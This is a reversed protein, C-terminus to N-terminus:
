LILLFDRSNVPVLSNVTGCINVAITSDVDSFNSTMCGCSISVFPEWLFINFSPICFLFLHFMFGCFQFFCFFWSYIWSLLFFWLIAFCLISSDTVPIGFAPVTILWNYIILLPFSMSLFGLVIMLFSEYHVLIRDMWM